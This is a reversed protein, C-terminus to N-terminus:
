EFKLPFHGVVFGTGFCNECRVEVPRKLELNLDWIHGSGFCKPCKVSVPMRVSKLVELLESASLAGNRRTLQELPM